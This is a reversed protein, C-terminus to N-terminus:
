NNLTSRNSIRLAHVVGNLVGNCVPQTCRQLDLLFVQISDMSNRHVNRTSDNLVTTVNGQAKSPFTILISNLNGELANFTSRLIILVNIPHAMSIREMVNVRNIERLDRPLHTHLVTSLFTTISVVEMSRVENISQLSRVTISCILGDISVPGTLDEVELDQLRIMVKLLISTSNMNRCNRLTLRTFRVNARANLINILSMNRRLIRTIRSLRTLLAM